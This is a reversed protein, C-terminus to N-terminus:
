RGEGGGNRGEAEFAELGREVLARIADSRNHKGSSIGWQDIREVLSSEFLVVVRETIRAWDKRNRRYKVKVDDM